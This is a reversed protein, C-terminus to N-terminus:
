KVQQWLRNPKAELQTKLTSNWRNLFGYMSIVSVIEIIAQDSFHSKLNDFDEDSTENPTMGAKYAVELAARERASFLDSTRFEWVAQIKEFAAGYKEASNAAHAQCYECGAAASCILGVLRKLENDVEGDAYISQVLTLFAKLIDPRYAMTLGDNAVFGMLQKGAKFIPALEPIESLQKPQIRPM